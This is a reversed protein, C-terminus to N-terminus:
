YCDGAPFNKQQFNYVFDVFERPAFLDNARYESNYKEFCPIKLKLVVDGVGITKVSVFSSKPTDNFNTASFHNKITKLSRKSTITDFFM